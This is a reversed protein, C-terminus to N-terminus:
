NQGNIAAPEPEPDPKIALASGSGPSGMCLAGSDIITIMRGLNLQTGLLPQDKHGFEV